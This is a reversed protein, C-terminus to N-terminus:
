ACREKPDLYDLGLAKFIDNEELVKKGADAPSYTKGTSLYTLAHSSCNFGKEKACIRFSREFMKSGTWGLVACAWEDYPPVIIDVRRFLSVFKPKEQYASLSWGDNEELPKACGYSKKLPYRCVCLCKSHSDMNSQQVGSRSSSRHPKNPNEMSSLKHTLFNAKEMQKIIKQLLGNAKDKNPHTVLIDVDKCTEAGRRYSGCFEVLLHKDIQDFVHTFLINKFEEVEERTIPTNFDDYHKLGIRQNTNLKEPEIDELNRWGYENFWKDTTKSGTWLVKSFIKRCQYEENDKEMDEVEAVKKYRLFEDIVRLCHSGINPIQQAITLSDIKFPIASVSARARRFALARISDGMVDHYEEIKGLLAAIAENVVAGSTIKMQCHDKPLHRLIELKKEYESAGGKPTMNGSPKRARELDCDSSAEESESRLLFPGPDVNKKLSLCSSIWETGVFVVGSGTRLKLAGKVWEEFSLSAEAASANLRQKVLRRTQTFGKSLLTEISWSDGGVIHTVEPTIKGIHVQAGHLVCQRQFISIGAKGLSAESICIVCGKLFLSQNDGDESQISDRRRKPM